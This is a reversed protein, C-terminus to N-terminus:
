ATMTPYRGLRRCKRQEWAAEQSATAAPFSVASVKTLKQMMTRVMPASTENVTEITEIYLDAVHAEKSPALVKSVIAIAFSKKSEIFDVSREVTCRAITRFKGENSSNARYCM